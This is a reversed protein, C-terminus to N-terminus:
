LNAAARNLEADTTIGEAVKAKGDELLPLMGNRIAIKAITSSDNNQSIASRIEDNVTLLEFIGVRGRFGTGSCQRCKNGTKTYDYGSGGCNSCIKRVLRQSLVGYLASAILFGEM